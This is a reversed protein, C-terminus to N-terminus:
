KDTRIISWSIRNDFEEQIWDEIFIGRDIEDEIEELVEDPITTYQPRSKGVYGDNIEWTVIM